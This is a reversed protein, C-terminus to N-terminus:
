HDQYHWDCRGRSDEKGNTDSRRRQGHIHLRNARALAVDPCGSVPSVTIISIEPHRPRPDQYRLGSEQPSRTIPSPAIAHENIMLAVPARADSEVAADVVTEAVRTKAILSTVPITPDEKVVSGYVVNCINPVDVVLRDDDAVDGHVVYTVVSTLTSDRSSRPRFFLSGCTLSM